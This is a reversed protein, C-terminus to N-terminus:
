PIHAQDNVGFDVERATPVCVCRSGIPGPLRRGRSSFAGTASHRSTVPALSKQSLVACPELACGCGTRKLSFQCHNAPRRQRRCCFPRSRGRTTPEIGVTRIPLFLTTQKGASRPKTTTGSLCRPRIPTPRDAGCGEDRRLLNPWHRSLASSQQRDALRCSDSIAASPKLSAVVRALAPCVHTRPLQAGAGAAYFRWTAPEANM